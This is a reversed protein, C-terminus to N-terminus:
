LVARKEREIIGRKKKRKDEVVSRMYSLFIYPFCVWKRTLFHYRDGIIEAEFFTTLM